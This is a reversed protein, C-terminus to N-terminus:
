AAVKAKMRRSKAEPREVSVNGSRRRLDVAVVKFGCVVASAPNTGHASTPILCVDRHHDGRASPLAQHRAPRCIRRALGANPQLSVAPSAPASERALSWLEAFLDTAETQDTPAFPHLNNVEPWSLPM